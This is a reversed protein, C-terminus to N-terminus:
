DLDEIRKARTINISSSSKIHHVMLIFLIIEAEFYKFRCGAMFFSCKQLTAINNKKKSQM